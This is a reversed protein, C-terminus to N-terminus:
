VAVGRNHMGVKVGVKARVRIRVEHEIYEMDPRMAGVAIEDLMMSHKFAILGEKEEKEVKLVRVMGEKFGVVEKGGKTRGYAENFYAGLHGCDAHLCVPPLELRPEAEVDYVEGLEGDMERLFLKESTTQRDRGDSMRVTYYLHPFDDLHKEVVAVPEGTPLYIPSSGPEYEAKNPITACTTTIRYDVAGHTVEVLCKELSIFSGKSTIDVPGGYECIHRLLETSISEPVDVGSELSLM